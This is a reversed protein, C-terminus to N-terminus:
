LVAGLGYVDTAPGVEAGSGAVQEPAMYSPTGLVAGPLTAAADDLQRALGFDALRPRGDSDLLINAPKLDRHVVGAAHAAQLARAVAEILEAAPRAALVREGLRRALSGGVVYEMALFPRGDHEGIEYLQVVHPHQLLAILEAERRFRALREPSAH